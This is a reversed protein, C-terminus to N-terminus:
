RTAMATRAVTGRSIKTTKQEGFKLAVFVICQPALHRQISLRDRYIEFALQLIHRGRQAKQGTCGFQLGAVKGGKM